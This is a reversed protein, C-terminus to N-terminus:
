KVSLNCKELPFATTTLEPRCGSFVVTVSRRCSWSRPKWDPNRTKLGYTIKLAKSKTFNLYSHWIWFTIKLKKERETDREHDLQQCSSFYQQGATSLILSLRLFLCFSWKWFYNPLLGTLVGSYSWSYFYTQTYTFSPYPTPSSSSSQELSPPSGPILGM